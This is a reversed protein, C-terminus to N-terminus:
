KGRAGMRAMMEEFPLPREPTGGLGGEGMGQSEQVLQDATPDLWDFQRLLMKRLKIQDIFVDGKLLELLEKNMQYRMGRSIPLGSDPDVKLMYEGKLMDGTYSIWEAKGQEGVVQIVKEGTWYKFIFQNWKRLINSVVDAVIDRREDMRTEAAQSVIQAETATKGHFPSFEGLQNTSFGSNERMDKEVERTETTTDNTTNKPQFEMISGGLSDSDVEIGAGIDEIETSLLKDLEEKKLVGKQYLIKIVSLKRLASAQTRIENLEKQQPSNIFVDSIGWPHESDENFTIFEWPLGEIQLADDEDLLLTDESIIYVKRKRVDRIEWLLCYSENNDERNLHPNKVKWQQSFGGSLKKKNENYKQDEQVDKLPRFIAHAIWPFTQPDDYGWPTVVDEPRARLAWPMGPKVNVKYEIQDGTKTSVQTITGTDTDVAQRPIFGFESDYGLKIPGTGCLYSDLCAKKIAYKLNLERILYNDIAEVVRSHAEFEPRLPTVMVSPTRFYVRPLLSRGMSFVRNIPIIRSNWKGRYQERWKRWHDESSFKKRYKLGSDIKSTWENVFDNM